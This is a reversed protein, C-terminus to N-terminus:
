VHAYFEQSGLMVAAIIQDPVGTQLTAVFSGLGGEDAPRGLYLQYDRSVVNRLYETSSLIAAAIQPGSLGQNLAQTFSALGGADPSRNLADQYLATVFGSNTGGGRVQFYEASSTLITALQELTGGAGLFATYTTLGSPDAARHLFQQYLAQVQNTRWEQSQQFALAVQTRSVGQNLAAVWGALGAADPQRQLLSVYLQAVFRETTTGVAVSVAPATSGTHSSDGVYTVSLAHFGPVLASTTFSATAGSLPVTALPTGQDLFVVSGALSAPSSTSPTVTATLTIPQGFAVAPASTSLVATTSDATISLTGNVFTIAYDSSSAGSVSIAYSGAPSGATATTALVPPTTLSAVSDGNVFGSFHATLGPLAAGFVVSQDDATVTLPAPTITLTSGVFRITYNSGATLTGQTIAYPGGAVTEGAARALGGSLVATATDGLQLGSVTYTLTPDTQGYVKSQADATITLTAPAVAQSVNGLSPPFGTAGNYTATITHPSAAASLTAITFTAHGQTDLAVASALLTNGETFTVSGSTVPQGGSTVTATFTVAQGYTSPAPSGTVVTTTAGTITFEFAGIDVATGQRPYGPGRQDTALGLTNSGAILAPSGGLLAMTQTPGGNSALPGLLPDATSVVTGSFGNQSQILDHDGSTMSTGGNITQAQFDSAGGPTKAVISSTLTVSATAGDGLTYVGGGGQDAINGSLTSNQIAVTGNRNFLAGGLGAGASAGTGGIASNATLTSNTITVTGGSNFIAGGLGAGGGGDGGYYPHPGGPNGGSGGGFGGTGGTTRYAGGGGGGGGFGGNGGAGGGTVFGYGGGGGGGGFGGGGGGGGKYGYGGGGGGGGIGGAAGAGGLSQGSNGGIGSNPGSGTGGNSSTANDGDGGLGGGGAGGYRFPPANLVGGDGGQALNGTLTSRQVRLIGENFIAGGLGAAGGGGGGGQHNGGHGGQALGNSLTLNQLTLDGSSTVLFLRMNGATGSRAIGIGSNGGLGTIAVPSTVLLASPGFSSDDVTSLNITGGALGSAFQITDAGPHQTEDNADHIAQRLSGAGADNLNTVTFLSPLWREELNEVRLSPHLACASRKAHGACRSWSPLKRSLCTGLWHSFLM